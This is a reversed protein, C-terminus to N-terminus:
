VSLCFKNWNDTQYQRLHHKVELYRHHLATMGISLPIVTRDDVCMADEESLDIRRDEQALIQLVPLFVQTGDLDEHKSIENRFCSDSSVIPLPPVTLSIEKADKTVDLFSTTMEHDALLQLKMPGNELSKNETDPIHILLVPPPMVILQRSHGIVQQKEKRPVEM